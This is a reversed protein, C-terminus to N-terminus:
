TGARLPRLVSRERSGAGSLGPHINPLARLMAVELVECPAGAALMYEAGPPIVCADGPSLEHAGFTPCQVRLQGDLVTLFLLEGDHRHAAAETAIAESRARLVRVSGEGASAQAIGSDRIDFAGSADRRWAAEAAVHRVFRQGAFLRESRVAATPLELAHDRYTEHGAPASVEIVELAPSSELVRHRIGPPQLVCDGAQMVFAPGQDEYVVRVWGRRCYIMQFRVRHHHVYDAVPGGGAIRILSAIVRGGLRGPILDRYQMGARGIGWADSARVILFEHGYAGAAVPASEASAAEVELRLAIGYGSMAALRPADAPMIMDLRLGLGEYFAIATELDACAIAVQAGM